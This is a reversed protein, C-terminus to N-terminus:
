HIWKLLGSRMNRLADVQKTTAMGREEITSCIDNVKEEISAAFDQAKASDPMDPIIEDLIERCLSIADDAEDNLEAASVRVTASKRQKTAPKSPSKPLSAAAPKISKDAAQQEKGCRPCGPDDSAAGTWGYRRQCTSCTFFWRPEAM